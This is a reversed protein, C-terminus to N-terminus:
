ALLSKLMAMLEGDQRTHRWANDDWRFHHGGNPAALWVEKAAPQRNIILVGGNELTVEIVGGNIDFDAGTEDLLNEIQAFLADCQQLYENENM